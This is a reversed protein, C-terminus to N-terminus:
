KGKELNILSYVLPIRGLYRDECCVGNNGAQINPLFIPSITCRIPFQMRPDSFWGLIKQHLSMLLYSPRM